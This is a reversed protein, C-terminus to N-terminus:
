NEHGGSTQSTSNWKLLMLGKSLGVVIRSQPVLVISSVSADLSIEQEINADREWIRITDGSGVTVITLHGDSDGMSLSTVYEDAPLISGRVSLGTMLDTFDIGEWRLCGIAVCGSIKALELLSVAGNGRLPESVAMGTVVDWARVTGQNGGSVVIPHGDFNAAALVNVHEKNNLPGGFRQGTTLDWINIIGNLDGTIILPRENLVTAAVAKAGLRNGCIPKGIARGTSPRWAQVVRVLGFSQTLRGGRPATDEQQDGACVFLGGERDRMWVRGDSTRFTRGAPLEKIRIAEGGYLRDGIRESTESDNVDLTPEDAASVIVQSDNTRLVIIRQVANAHAQIPERAPQGTALDCVRIAGDYGGAVILPNGEVEGVALSRVSIGHLQGAENDARFGDLPAELIQVTGDSGGSVIVPLSDLTGMAVSTVSGDHQRISEGLILRESLDWICITGENDGTVIVPHGAIDGITLTYIPKNHGLLPEIVPEATAIHWARINGDGGGAVVIPLGNLTGVAVARVGAFSYCETSIDEGIRDGTAFDCVRLVRDNHLSLIVPQNGLKSVAVWHVVGGFAQMPEAVPQGTALDWVEVNGHSGGSILLRWGDVMELALAQAPAGGYTRSKIPRGIPRAAALDWIRITGDRGGSAIFTRGELERAALATIADSHGHLAEVVTRGTMVDWVRVTGDQFGTVVVVRDEESVVPAIVETTLSSALFGANTAIVRHTLSRHWVAWLVSFRLPFPLDNFRDAIENLGSQRAVMQLYSARQPFSTNRLHHIAGLYVHAIERPVDHRYSVLMSLLADPDAMALVLEDKVLQGLIGAGAAHTPLHLLGYDDCHQWHDRYQEWYYHAIRAHMAAGDIRFDTNADEELLFDAFSKHFLRFPGNPLEGNLYQKCVRLAARIDKGDKGIIYTLQQATLGEGQAVAILGLLPEYVDFWVREDKGLERLIFKLYMGPLGVPLAFYKLDPFEAPSHGLLEDLVMAAYLFVGDAQKALRQAFELRKREEVADVAARDALRGAAYLRVDDVDTDADAILDFPKLDRFFKLVRPEDRTSTLIRIPAPLDSLRSLLDPIKVGTYTDAEDLADVLLLMPETYGSAYLKKLPQTFARDFSLEDGLAGLDIRGIAVGTLSSGAAATGAQASGVINVREALTAALAAGFGKVSGTM